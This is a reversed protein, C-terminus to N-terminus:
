ITSKGRKVTINIEARYLFTDEAPNEYIYVIDGPETTYIGLDDDGSRKWKRVPTGSISETFIFHVLEDAYDWVADEVAEVNMRGDIVALTVPLAHEHRTTYILEPTLSTPFVRIQPLQASSLDSLAGLVDGRKILRVPETGDDNPDNFFEGAGTYDNLISVIRDIILGTSKNGAAM